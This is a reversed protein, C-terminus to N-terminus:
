AKKRGKGLNTLWQVLGPTAVFLIVLGQIVMVMTSSIGAVRNMKMAGADLAGFLLATLLIAFPNNNGLVAVAIGTFGYSPSFGDIFRGYKGIVETIGALGAIGGSIAMTLVTTGVMNVGSAEAGSPNGGVVRINYGLRTKKYFFYIAVALLIALLLATTLQTKPILKSLLAAKPLMPTQAIMGEDMLPGSVIYSTLYTAIYNSLIAVIVENINMKAKIVGVLSGWLMGGIFATLIILPLMIIRPLGPLFLATCTGFLAGVYLQGEAGINFLGGKLAFGVALGTFMLPVSKSLTNAISNLSGFAGDWLSRYAALPNYGVALMILASVVLALGTAIVPSAFTSLRINLHKRPNEM